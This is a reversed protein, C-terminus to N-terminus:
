LQRVYNSPFYGKRNQCKGYWWEGKQEIVQILDGEDFGLENDEKAVFEYMGQVTEIEPNENIQKPEMTKPHFHQESVTHHKSPPNVKSIREKTPVIEQTEKIYKFNPPVSELLKRIQVWGKNVEDLYTTYGLLISSMIPRAITEREEDLKKM